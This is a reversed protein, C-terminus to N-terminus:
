SLRRTSRAWTWAGVGVMRLIALLKSQPRQGRRSVSMYSMSATIGSSRAPARKAHFISPCISTADIKGEVVLRSAHATVNASSPRRLGASRSSVDSRGRTVCGPIARKAILSRVGLRGTLHGAHRNCRNIDLTPRLHVVGRRGHPVPRQRGYPVLVRAHRARERRKIRRKHHRRTTRGVSTSHRV